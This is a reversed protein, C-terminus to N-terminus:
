DQRTAQSVRAKGMELRSGKLAFIQEAHAAIRAQRTTFIVTTTLGLMKELLYETFTDADHDLTELGEVLLLKPKHILARALAWRQQELPALATLTAEAQLELWDCMKTVRNNAEPRSMNAIFLPLAVNDQLSFQPLWPIEPSVLGIVERRYTAREPETCRELRYGFVELSGTSPQELGALLKILTTKGSRAQGLVAVSSGQELRFSVDQLASVHGQVTKFTKSLRTAVVADNM